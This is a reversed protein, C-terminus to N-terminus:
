KKEINKLMLAATQKGAANYIHLETVEAKYNTRVFATSQTRQEMTTTLKGADDPAEIRRLLPQEFFASDLRNGEADVFYATEYGPFKKSAGRKIVGASLTVSQVSWKTATASGEAHLLVGLVQKGANTAPQKSGITDIDTANTLSTSATNSNGGGAVPKLAKCSIVCFVALVAVVMRYMRCFYKM